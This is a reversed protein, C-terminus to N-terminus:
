SSSIAAGCYNCEIDYGIELQQVNQKSLKSGCIPCLWSELQKESVYKPMITSRTQANPDKRNVWKWWNALFSNEGQVFREFKQPSHIAITVLISGAVLIFIFLLYYMLFFPPLQLLMMIDIDQISIFDEFFSSETNLELNSYQAYMLVIM